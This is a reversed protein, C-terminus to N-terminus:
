YVATRAPGSLIKGGRRQSTALMTGNTGARAMREWLKRAAVLPGGSKNCLPWQAAGLRGRAVAAAGDCRGHGPNFTGLGIADLNSVRKIYM